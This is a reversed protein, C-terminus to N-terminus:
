ERARAIEDEDALAPVQLTCLLLVAFVASKFVAKM